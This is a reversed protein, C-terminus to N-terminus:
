FLLAMGFTANAASGGQVSGSIRIYQPTNPQLALTASYATGAAVTIPAAFYPLATWTANDPAGQLTLYSASIGSPATCTVLLETQNITPWPSAVKFNFSPTVGGVGAVFSQSVIFNQDSFLYENTPAGANSATISTSM